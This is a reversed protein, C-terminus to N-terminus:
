VLFVPGLGLKNSLGDVWFLHKGIQSMWVSLHIVKIISTNKNWCVFCGLICKFWPNIAAPSEFTSMEFKVSNSPQQNYLKKSGNELHLIIWCLIFSHSFNWLIRWIDEWTFWWCIIIHWNWWKKQNNEKIEFKVIYIDHHHNFPCEYIVDRLYHSAYTRKHCEHLHLYNLRKTHCLPLPTLFLWFKRSTM